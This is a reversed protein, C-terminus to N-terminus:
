HRVIGLNELWGRFFPRKPSSVNKKKKLAYFGLRLREGFPETGSDRRESVRALADPSGDHWCDGAPAKWPNRPSSKGFRLSGELIGKM